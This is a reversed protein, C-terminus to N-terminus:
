KKLFEYEYVKPEIRQALAKLRQRLIGLLEMYRADDSETKMQEKGSPQTKTGQFYLRIDYYSANPNAGPQAHYYKWLERGADMVAQAEPSFHLADIEPKEEVDWRTEQGEATQPQWKGRIFDSMFHSEFRDQAGVEEETYPIWYNIGHESQINNNFIAFVLCDGQFDVDLKWGDDPFLFQDRDNYWDAAICHRITYYISM